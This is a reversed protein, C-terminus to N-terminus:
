SIRWREGERGGASVAQGECRSTKGDRSRPRDSHEELVDGGEIVRRKKRQLFGRLDGLLVCIRSIRLSYGAELVDGAAALRGQSFRDGRFEALAQGFPRDPDHFSGSQGLRRIVNGVGRDGGGAVGERRRCSQSSRGEGELSWGRRSGAARRKAGVSRLRPFVLAHRHQELLRRTERLLSSHRGVHPQPRSLRRSRPGGLEECPRGRM